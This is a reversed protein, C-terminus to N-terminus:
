TLSFSVHADGKKEQTWDVCYGQSSSELWPSNPVLSRCVSALCFFCEHIIWLSTSGIHGNLSEIDCSADKLCVDVIDHMYKQLHATRKRLGACRLGPRKPLWPRNPAVLCAGTKTKVVMCTCSTSSTRYPSPCTLTARNRRRHWCFHFWGCGCDKFSVIWSRRLFFFMDAKCAMNDHTINHATAITNNYHPFDSASPLM